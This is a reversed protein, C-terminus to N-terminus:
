LKHGCNICIRANSGNKKHCKKCEIFSQYNTTKQQKQMTSQNIKIQAGTNVCVKESEADKRGMIENIDITNIINPRSTLYKNLKKKYKKNFDVAKLKVNSVFLGQKDLAEQMEANVISEVHSQSNLIMEIPIKQKQVVHNIKNGVLLSLEPAVDKTKIKGKKSILQKILDGADLVNISCTGALCGKVRGFTTTKSKFPTDSIYAFQKFTSLNVFYLDVRIKKIKAGSSEKKEIKARSYTEPISDQNIRYKGELVVDCVKGDYVVVCATNERVYINKKIYLHKKKKLLYVIHDDIENGCEINKNFLEKLQRFLGM